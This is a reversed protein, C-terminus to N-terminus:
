KRGKPKKPPKPKKPKKGELWMPANSDTADARYVRHSGGGEFILKKKNDSFNIGMLDDTIIEKCEPGMKCNLWAMHERANLESLVTELLKKEASSELNIIRPVIMVTVIAIILLTCILEILTFGRSNMQVRRRHPPGFDGM